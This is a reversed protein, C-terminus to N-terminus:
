RFVDLNLISIQTSWFPFIQIPADVKFQQKVNLVCCCFFLFFQHSTQLVLFKFTLHFNLRLCSATLRHIFIVLIENIKKEKKKKTSMLMEKRLMLSILLFNFPFFNSFLFIYKTWMSKLFVYYISSNRYSWTYFYSKLKYSNVELCYIRLERLWVSAKEPFLTTPFVRNMANNMAWFPM